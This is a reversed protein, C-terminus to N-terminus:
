RHCACLAVAAALAWDARSLSWPEDNKKSRSDHEPQAVPHAERETAYEAARSKRYLLRLKGSLNRPRPHLRSQPRSKSGQGRESLEDLAYATLKPDDLNINM